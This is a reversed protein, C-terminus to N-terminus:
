TYPLYEINGLNLITICVMNFEWHLIRLLLEFVLFTVLNIDELLSSFVMIKIFGTGYVLDTSMIVFIVLIFKNLNTKFMKTTHSHELITCWFVPNITLHVVQINEITNVNRHLKEWNFQKKVM